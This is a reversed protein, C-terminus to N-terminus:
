AKTLQEEKEEEGLLLGEKLATDVKLNLQLQEAEEESLLAADAEEGEAAEAAAEEAAAGRGRVRRWLGRLPRRRPRAAPATEQFSGTVAEEPLAGLLKSQALKM